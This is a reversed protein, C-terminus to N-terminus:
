QTVGRSSESDSDLWWQSPDNLANIVGLANSTVIKTQDDYDYFLPSGDPLGYVGRIHGAGDTWLGARGKPVPTDASPLVLMGSKELWQGVEAPKGFSAIALVFTLVVAGRVRAIYAAGAATLAIVQRYKRTRTDISTSGHHTHRRVTKVKVQLLCYDDGRRVDLVDANAQIPEGGGGSTHDGLSTCQWEIWKGKYRRKADATLKLVPKGARTELTVFRHAHNGVFSSTSGAGPDPHSYTGLEAQAPVALVLGGLITLLVLRVARSHM